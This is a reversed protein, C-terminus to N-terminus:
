CLKKIISSSIFPMKVWMKVEQERVIQVSIIYQLLSICFLVYQDAGKNNAYRM